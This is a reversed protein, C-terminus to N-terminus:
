SSRSPDPDVVGGALGQPPHRRRYLELALAGLGMLSLLGVAAAGVVPVAGALMVLLLALSLWAVGAGLTVPAPKRLAARLLIAVFLVGVLFGALLLVPYLALVALGLPIGLLTIFLLVALVPLAVLLAFGVALALWPAAHLRAAAQRGFVPLLLLFVAGCALLALFSMVSGAIFAGPGAPAAPRAAPKGAPSAAARRQIGGAVTATAAQELEAESAYTLVGGIRARPGLVVEGGDVHADGRVEGNITVKQAGARLTGDIRGEITVSGGYLRAPGAVSAGPQLRVQGGTAFLEGGVSSELTIDGGMVRLDDAVAARVDVTGGALAADGGVRQDLVIRGGAAMFDGEAPAEPRVQGGSAYVNRGGSIVLTSTGGGAGQAHVTTSALALLALGAAASLRFLLQLPM